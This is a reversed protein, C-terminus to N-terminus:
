YRYKQEIDFRSKIIHAASIQEFSEDDIDDKSENVEIVHPTKIEIEEWNIPDDSATEQLSMVITKSVPKMLKVPSNKKSGKPHDRWM